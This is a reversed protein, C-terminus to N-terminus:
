KKFAANYLAVGTEYADAFSKEDFSATPVAQVQYDGETEKFELLGMAIKAKIVRQTARDLKEKFSVDERSKELLLELASYFLKESLMIVDVGADIAMIVAKEPPFGNKELAAMFIDDSFILGQYDYSNRVTDTVWFSSLCAPTNSDYALTRAHSMLVGLPRVGKLPQEGYNHDLFSDVDESVANEEGTGQLVKKFLNLYKDSLEAESLMIEPLGSHPDVNTNGPFHKVVTGINEQQFGAICAKVYTEVDQPSGFSRTGLFDRNEEFSAEAVPALNLHFGLAAMQRGQLSYLEQAEEATMNKAVASASPLPSTIGRLRSVDGGEQDLSLYVPVGAERTCYEQVSATFAAVQQPTDAINYSFFIYGGPVLLDGEPTYELPVYETNGELNVLFLQSYRQVEPLKEVFNRIAADKKEEQQARIEAESVVPVEPAEINVAVVGSDEKSNRCSYLLVSLAITLLFMNRLKKM